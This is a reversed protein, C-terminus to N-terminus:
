PIGPRGPHGPDRREGSGERHWPTVSVACSPRTPSGAQDGRAQNGTRDRTNWIGRALAAGAVPRGPLGGAMQQQGAANMWAAWEM